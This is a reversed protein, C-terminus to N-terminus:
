WFSSKGSKSKKANEDLRRQREERRCQKYNDFFSQCVDKNTYNDEICRLSAAHQTSCDTAFKTRQKGYIDLDPRIPQGENHQDPEPNADLEIKANLDPSNKSKNKDSASFLM